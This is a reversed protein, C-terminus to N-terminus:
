VNTELFYKAFHKNNVIAVKAREEEDAQKRKYEAYGQDINSRESHKTALEEREKNKKDEITRM